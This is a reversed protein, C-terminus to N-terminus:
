RTRFQLYTLGLESKTIKDLESYTKAKSGSGDFMNPFLETGSDINREAPPSRLADLLIALAESSTQNTVVELDALQTNNATNIWDNVTLGLHLPLVPGSDLGIDHHIRGYFIQKSRGAYELHISVTKGIFELGTYLGDKNEIEFTVSGANAIRDSEKSNPTGNKGKIDSVVLASIDTEPIDDGDFDIYIKREPYINEQTM